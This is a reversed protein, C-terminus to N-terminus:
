IKGLEDCSIYFIITLLIAAYKFNGSQGFGELFFKEMGKNKRNKATCNQSGYPALCMTIFLDRSTVNLLFKVIYNLSDISRKRLAVM